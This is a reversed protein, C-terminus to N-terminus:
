ISFPAAQLVGSKLVRIRGAQELIVQMTPDAPNQIFGTPNVFGSGVLEARLQGFAPVAGAILSGLVLALRLIMRRMHTRM